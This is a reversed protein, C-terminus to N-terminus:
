VVSKRDGAYYKALKGSPTSGYEDIVTLFGFNNGDGYLALHMSDQEFYREAQFIAGAAENAKPESIYKRYGFIGLVIVVILVILIIIAKQNKEVFQESRNIVQEVNELKDTQKKKAM